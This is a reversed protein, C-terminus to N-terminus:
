NEREVVRDIRSILWRDKRYSLTLEDVREEEAPAVFLPTGDSPVAPNGKEDRPPEGPRLLSYRARFSATGDSGDADVAEVELGVIGFITAEVEPRGAAIWEKASVHSERREYAQRVRSVVYLNIAADVDGKAAKDTTCAEMLVHDLEDFSGYFASVVQEPSMGVTTPRAARDRAIGRVLLVVGLAALAVTAIITANRRAFRKAGVRSARERGRRLAEDELSRKEEPSLERYFAKADSGRQGLAAALDGASPRIKRAASRPPGPKREPPPAVLADLLDALGPELGPRALRAPPACGDRMDARVADADSGPFPEAGCLARYALAGAAFAAAEAGELDPHRWRDAGSLRAAPGRSDLARLALREPLFLLAGDDAVLTAAPAPPPAGADAESLAPLAAVYARVADVSADVDGAELITQLTRGRFVPGRVAMTGDLEAVGEPTWPEAPLGPRVIRGPATALTALKAQAFALQGLGTDVVLCDEGGVREVRAPPKTEGEM